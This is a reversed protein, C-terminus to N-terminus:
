TMNDNDNGHIRLRNKEILLEMHLGLYEAMKCIEDSQPHSRDGSSFGHLSMSSNIDGVDVWSFGVEKRVGRQRMMKRLKAVKEWKGKEAYLNSMLVYPGSENPEIEMLTDAVREGMEVNGHITCAGLLSQLMSLGPGGPTCGMLKEAEELRGARGLMDVMCSYHESSPEIQYETLMSDFIQKGIDVMGNRGCATLISLFTISDPKVGETIMEKFSAMVSDYNGHRAHASILSTWAFQSKQPIENFVKQAESISGRKAYMDLLANSVIPDTNFGVKILHLHCWQGHKLSLHECSGIANLVSGFTYQNPKCEGAASFFTRMAELFMGNQAYGSILANWSVTERSELEEFVKVSDQILEFRAYMTILSNCVNSESLFSGKVCCAHVMRGEEVLKGSTIAHILGVFTVDNPHVYDSRMKNFHRLADKEDISIMTTWSIVNPENMRRFVWKADEVVECKAYMSMLVNCVSVHTGYGRKICLGHVQRGVELNRQHGCASVAGTFSVNDLKMRQKVMEIFTWIAELGYGDEQSYGSLIANWSVLDKNRMADFIMGAQELRKWRAYMTILANGVFVEGDLGSKVVLAHLELGLLFGELDLCFSLATTCTVADFAVGNLNMKSVFGLAEESKQFGSLLTNWSVIDPGNLGEFICLAKEFQGSKAYMNMLSNPVTVFSMLGSTIAFKHVQTGQKSDGCSGKLALALTVEDIANLQGSKLLLKLRKFADFPLNVPYFATPNSRPSEDLLQHVHKSPHLHGSLTSWQNTIYRLQRATM